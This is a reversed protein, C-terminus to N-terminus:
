DLGDLTLPQTDLLNDLPLDDLHAPSKSTTSISSNDALIWFQRGNQLRTAYKLSAQSSTSMSELVELRRADIKSHQQPSGRHHEALGANNGIEALQFNKQTFASIDRLGVLAINLILDTCGSPANEAVEGGLDLELSQVLELLTQLLLEMLRTRRAMM